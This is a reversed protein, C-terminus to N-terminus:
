GKIQLSALCMADALDKQATEAGPVGHSPSHVMSFLAKGILTLLFYCQAEQAAHCEFFTRPMVKM